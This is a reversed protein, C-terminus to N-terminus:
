IYKLIEEIGDWKDLPTDDIIIRDIGSFDISINNHYYIQIKM